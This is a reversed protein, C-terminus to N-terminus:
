IEGGMFVRIKDIVKGEDELENEWIVILNYGLKSFAEKRGDETDTPSDARRTHWYEGFIEILRKSGDVAIFDPLWRGMRFKTNYAFPLHNKEILGIMKRELGNPHKHRAHQFKKMTALNRWRLKTVTSADRANIGFKQMWYKVAAFSIGLMRAIQKYGLGETWYLKILEEKSLQFKRRKTLDLKRAKDYCSRSCYKGGGRRIYHNLTRFRKGCLLCNVYVKPKQLDGHLNRWTVSCSSSCFKRNRCTRDQFFKGCQPCVFRFM